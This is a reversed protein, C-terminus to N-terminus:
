EDEGDFGVSEDQSDHETPVAFQVATGITEKSQALEAADVKVEIKGFSHAATMNQTVFGLYKRGTQIGANM